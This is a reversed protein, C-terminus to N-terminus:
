KRKSTQGRALSASKNRLSPTLFGKRSFIFLALLLYRPAKTGLFNCLRTLWKLRLLKFRQQFDKPSSFKNENFNRKAFFFNEGCDPNYHRDNICSVDPVREVFAPHLVPPQV